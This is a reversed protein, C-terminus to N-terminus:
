GSVQPLEAVFRQLWQQLQPQQYLRTLEQLQENPTRRHTYLLFERVQQKVGQQWAEPAQWQPLVQQLQQYVSTRTLIMLESFHMAQNLENILALREAPPSQLRLRGVYDQYEASGQEHIAQRERQKAQQWALQQLQRLLQQAQDDALAPMAQQWLQQLHQPSWQSAVLNVVRYQDGLSAQQENLVAQSIHRAQDALGVVGMLEAVQQTIDVGTTTELASASADVSALSTAQAWAVPSVLALWVCMRSIM